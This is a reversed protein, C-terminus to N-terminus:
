LHVSLQTLSREFSPRRLLYCPCLGAQQGSPVILLQRVFSGDGDALILANIGLSKTGADFPPLDRRFLM